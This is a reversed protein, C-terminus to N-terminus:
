QKASLQLTNSVIGGTQTEKKGEGQLNVGSRGGAGLGFAGGGRRGARPIGWQRALPEERRPGEWPGSVRGKERTTLSGGSCDANILLLFVLIIIWIPKM